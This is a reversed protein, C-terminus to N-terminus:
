SLAGLTLNWGSTVDCCGTCSRARPPRLWIFNYSVALLDSFGFASASLGHRQREYQLLRRKRKDTWDAPALAHDRLMAVLVFSSARKGTMHSLIAPVSPRESSQRPSM